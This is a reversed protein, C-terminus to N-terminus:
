SPSVKGMTSLILSYLADPFCVAKWPNLNNPFCRQTMLPTTVSLTFIINDKLISIVFELVALGKLISVGGDKSVDPVM